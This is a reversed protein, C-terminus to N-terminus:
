TGGVFSDSILRSLLQFNLAPFPLIPLCWARASLASGMSLDSRSSLESVFGSTRTIEYGSIRKRERETKRERRRDKGRLIEATCELM